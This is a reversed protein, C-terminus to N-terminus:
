ADDVETAGHYRRFAESPLEGFMVKYDRAFRGFHWFGWLTAAEAVSNVQKIARRAGNMRVSRLYASPKLGLTEQFSQQLARRSVGLTRCLEEVSTYRDPWETVLDRADRVIRTRKASPVEFSDNEARSLAAVLAARVDRTMSARRLPDNELDACNTVVECIDTFIRRMHEAASCDVSRLHPKALSPLVTELEDSTLSCRLDQEALVFGAIDLGSPSFFEFAGNGSFVHLQAGNCRQGCFTANGRLAIPVGVAITGEPLDGTQHLSNSTIERFLQVDDIRAELFAGSFAGASIQDYTQNWGRLLAAQEDIDRTIAANVAMKGGPSVVPQPAHRDSLAVM